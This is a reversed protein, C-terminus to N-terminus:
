KATRRRAQAGDPLSTMARAPSDTRLPEDLRSRYFRMM